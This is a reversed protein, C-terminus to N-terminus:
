IEDARKIQTNIKETSNGRVLGSANRVLGSADRVLGSADKVLGSVDQALASPDATEALTIVCRVYRSFQVTGRSLNQVTETLKRYSCATEDDTVLRSADRVLGSADRVLGSADRVLGSANRVLGSASPRVKGCDLATVSERVADDLELIANDTDQVTRIEIVIMDKRM